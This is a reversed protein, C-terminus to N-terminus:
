IQILIYPDELLWGKDESSIAKLLTSVLITEPYGGEKAGNYWVEM